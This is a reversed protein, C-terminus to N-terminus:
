YAHRHAFHYLYLAYLILLWPSSKLFRVWSLPNSHNFIFNITMTPFKLNSTRCVQPQWPQPRPQPHIPLKSNLETWDGLWTRSKAVGHVAAHWAERDMVLEQLKSLSMDMLNTIGDLWRMRQQGRRRRGEIDGLMLTKKLSDIRQRLHGFYQLKKETDTRGIFIWSQNGKLNVPKIKKCDLPSELIKELVVTWFYLNNPM